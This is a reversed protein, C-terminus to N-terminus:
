VERFCEIADRLLDYMGAHIMAAKIPKRVSAAGAALASAPVGALAKNVPAVPPASMPPPMGPTSRNGSPPPM